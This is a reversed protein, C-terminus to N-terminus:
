HKYNPQEYNRNRGPETRSSQVKRLILAQIDNIRAGLTFETDAALPATSFASVFIADPTAATDAVIGYPRQVIFPWLGAKLLSEKVEEPTAAKPESKLWLGPEPIKM